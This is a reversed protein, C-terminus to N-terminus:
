ILKELESKVEEWNGPHVARAFYMDDLKKLWEKQLPQFRAKESAKVEIFGYGGGDILFLVDPIGVPVGPVASLKIVVCGKLKLWHIIKTQLRSEVGNM